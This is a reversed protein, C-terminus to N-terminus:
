ELVGVQDYMVQEAECHLFEVYAMDYVIQAETLLKGVHLVRKRPNLPRNHPAAFAAHKLVVCFNHRRVVLAARAPENQFRVLIAHRFVKLAHIHAGPPLQRANVNVVVQTWQTHSENVAVVAAKRVEERIYACDHAAHKSHHSHHVKPQVRKDFIRQLLSHQLPSPRPTQHLAFRQIMHVTHM